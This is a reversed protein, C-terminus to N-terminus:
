EGRCRERALIASAAAPVDDDGDDDHKAMSYISTEVEEGGQYTDALPRHIDKNAECSLDLSLNVYALENNANFVQLRCFM